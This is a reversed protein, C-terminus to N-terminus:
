AQPFNRDAKVERIQETHRAGHSAAALLWQYGDWPGFLPHPFVHARLRRSVLLRISQERCQVFQQLAEPGSWRGTPYARVSAKVKQSRKPIRNLIFEDMERRDGEPPAGLAENMGEIIAHIGSEVLVIHEMNEAASWADSAPKFEWQAPYLGGVSEVLFGRTVSLHRSAMTIEETTLGTDSIIASSTNNM